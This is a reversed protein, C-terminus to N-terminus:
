THRTLPTGRRRPTCAGAAALPLACAGRLAQPSCSRPAGGSPGAAAPTRGAAGHRPAPLRQQRRGGQRGGGLRM